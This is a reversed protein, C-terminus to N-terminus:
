SRSPSYVMGNVNGVQPDFDNLSPMFGFAILRNSDTTTNLISQGDMLEGAQLDFRGCSCFWTSFNLLADYDLGDRESDIVMEVSSPFHAHVNDSIPLRELILDTLPDPLDQHPLQSPKAAASLSFPSSSSSPKRKKNYLSTM